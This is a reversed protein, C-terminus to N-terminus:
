SCSCYITTDTRNETGPVYETTFAYILGVLGFPLEIAVGTHVLVTKGAEIEFTESVSYLDAGAAYESGYTPLIADKDLKKINVKISM